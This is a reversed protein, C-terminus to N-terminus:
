RLPQKPGGSGPLSPDDAAPENLDTELAAAVAQRGAEGIKEAKRTRETRDIKELLPDFAVPVM